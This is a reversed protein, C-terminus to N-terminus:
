LYMSVSDVRGQPEPNPEPVMDWVVRALSDPLPNDEFFANVMAVYSNAFEQSHEIRM